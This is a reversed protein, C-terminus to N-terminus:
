CSSHYTRSTLQFYPPLQILNYTKGKHKEKHKEKRRNQSENNNTEDQKREDRRMTDWTKVRRKNKKAKSKNGMNEAATTGRAIVIENMSVREFGKRQIYNM